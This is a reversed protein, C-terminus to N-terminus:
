VAVEAIDGAAALQAIDPRYHSGALGIRAISSQAAVRADELTPASAVVCLVRGGHSVLTGPALDNGSGQEELATGAHIVHCGNATAESLGTIEDGSRSTLPYGESALVVTVAADNKWRLPPHEALTGTAAAYLLPGLDSALRELVVQTEPDGFRANFEIVRLGDATAALGCFLTGAFPAGRRAMAEITPQAVRTLTHQMAEAEDLWPLPSYAGMGGTNPGEDGPYARKFDQAPVLPVVTRGDSICFVSLEPGDLFEELVVRGGPKSLCAWAHDAAAERSDTVVVGKGAALGDDKVVFPTRAGPNIDELAADIQDARDITLSRATPVGAEAMVKKAFDKSGELEAAAKSPGFVTIGASRLDDALGAVLPAEPGIVVLDVGLDLALRTMGAHDDLRIAHLRAHEAM